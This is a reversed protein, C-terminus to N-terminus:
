TGCDSRVVDFLRRRGDTTEERENGANKQQRCDTVCSLEDFLGDRGIGLRVM